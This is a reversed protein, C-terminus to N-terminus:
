LSFVDEHWASWEAARLGKVGDLAELVGDVTARGGHCHLEVVDEGTFSKPAEFRLVLAEDLLEGTAPARLSRLSAKRVEPPKKGTLRELAPTALPGSVRVVAVGAVGRGSSLAYITDEARLARLRARRPAATTFARALTTLLSM